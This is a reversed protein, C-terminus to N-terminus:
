SIRSSMAVLSYRPDFLVFCGHTKASTAIVDGGNRGDGEDRDGDEDSESEQETHFKKCGAVLLTYLSPDVLKRLRGITGCGLDGFCVRVNKRRVFHQVPSPTFSNLDSPVRCM